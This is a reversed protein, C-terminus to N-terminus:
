GVHAYRALFSHQEALVGIQEVDRQVWEVKSSEPPRTSDVISVCASLYDEPADVELYRCLSELVHAPDTVMDEYHVTEITLDARARLQSLRDCQDFYDTIASDKSRGSRLVMASIPDIPNRVVHIFRLPVDGLMGQLRGLSNPEDVLRRTTPGARSDGIVRITGHRGQWLGPVALSYPEIRRATVRGKAAERRANRVLVDFLQHRRYGAESFRIVDTEDAVVVDPHADLLAGVLSGGSKTHGIFLLFRAVNQLREPYRLRALDARIARRRLDLWEYSGSDFVREGVRSGALRRWARSDFAGVRWSRRPVTM